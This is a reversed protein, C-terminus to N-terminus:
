AGADYWSSRGQITIEIQNLGLRGRTGTVRGGTFVRYDGLAVADARSDIVGLLKVGKAVMDCATRHGDDGNTFIAIADGNDAVPTAAWRNAYARLAGALMIGPRDNDAFPIHRETAGAAL